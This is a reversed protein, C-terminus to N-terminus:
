FPAGLAGNFMAVSYLWVFFLVPIAVVFLVPTSPNRPRGSNRAM